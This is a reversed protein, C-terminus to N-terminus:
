WIMGKGCVHVDQYSPIVLKRSPDPKQSQLIMNYLYAKDEDKGQAGCIAM